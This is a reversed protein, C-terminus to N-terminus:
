RYYGTHRDSNLDLEEVEMEEYWVDPMYGSYDKDYCSDHVINMWYCPQKVWWQCRKIIFQHITEEDCHFYGVVVTFVERGECDAWRNERVVYYKKVSM